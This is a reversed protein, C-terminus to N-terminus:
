EFRRKNYLYEDNNEIYNLRFYDLNTGNTQIYIDACGYEDLLGNVQANYLNEANLTLELDSWTEGHPSQSVNLTLELDSWTGWAGTATANGSAILNEPDSNRELSVYIQGANRGAYRVILSDLNSLKVSKYEIWSDATSGADNGGSCAGQSDTLDAGNANDAYEGEIQM